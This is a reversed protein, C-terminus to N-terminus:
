YFLIHDNISFSSSKYIENFIIGEDRDLDHIIM